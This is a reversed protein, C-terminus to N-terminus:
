TRGKRYQEFAAFLMSTDDHEPNWGLDRETAEIDLLYDIDAIEYQEKYMIELGCADLSRLVVKLGAGWTPFLFSRSGAKRIIQRLLNKVTPPNKSGLNYPGTPCGQKMASLIAKTCDHVSVMQYHNNGTGILPVPLNLEILRFLRALIGLRGAGIIMRPRFISIQFGNRVYDLCLDEAAKKTEGYPGFPHRPHDPRIPVYNPLGYVMDTSFFVMRSTGCEKMRLLINKTGEINVGSFFANRGQRPVRGHYQNAALHVVIDDPLFEFDLPQRIDQRFFNYDRVNLPLADDLGVLEWDTSHRFRAILAKGCFGESGIIIVRRRVGM